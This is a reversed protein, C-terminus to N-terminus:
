NGQVFFWTNGYYFNAEDTFNANNCQTCNIQVTAGYNLYVAHNTVQGPKYYMGDGASSFAASPPLSFTVNIGTDWWHMSANIKINTGPTDWAEMSSSKYYTHTVMGSSWSVNSGGYVRLKGSDRNGGSFIRTSGTTAVAPSIRSQSSTSNGAALPNGYKAMWQEYSLRDSAPVAVTAAGDTQIVRWGPPASATTASAPGALVLVPAVLAAIGAVCSLLRTRTRV